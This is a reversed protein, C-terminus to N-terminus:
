VNKQKQMMELLEKKQELEITCQKMANDNNMLRDSENKLKMELESMKINADTKHKILDQVQTVKKSLAAAYIILQLFCSAM